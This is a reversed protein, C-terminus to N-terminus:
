TWYLTRIQIIYRYILIMWRNWEDVEQQLNLFNCTNEWLHWNTQQDIQILEQVFTPTHIKSLKNLEALNLRWQNLASEVHQAISEDQLCQLNDEKSTTWCKQEADFYTLFDVEEQELMCKIRLWVNLGNHKEATPPRQKRAPYLGIWLISDILMHQGLKQIKHYPAM